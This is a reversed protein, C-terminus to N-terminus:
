LLKKTMKEILNKNKEYMASQPTITHGINYPPRLFAAEDAISEFFVQRKDDETEFVVCVCATRFSAVESVMSISEASVFVIDSLACFGEFVFPYNKRNAIVLAQTHSFASLEKDLYKEIERPTRRSTSILLGYDGKRSFEKLKPLFAKVNRIFEKKDNLPGGIFLAIHKNKTLSFFEKAKKAKEEINSPCFLAGKIIVANDALVRDHEPIIALDFVRLPINPRLIVASKAGLSASVLKNIPAILSGTSIVIDAYTQNLERSTKPKLLHPLLWHYSPFFRGSATALLDSVARCLKNKYQVDIIKTRISYGRESLLSVLTQSQKLHGTKRDSLILIDRNKKYKFRKYYWCYEWPYQALYKEYIRNLDSLVEHDSKGSLDLPKAIEVVHRLGERRYSFCPYIRKNFKRALHLAGGPTPVLHSFFEVIQATREAGHDIVMGAMCGKKLERILEKLSSCVCMGNHRRLDNLFRNLSKQRQEKVLLAYTYARSFAMNIVEWSGSHIGIFIGGSADVNDKGRIDVGAYLRSAILTELITVGLNAFNKRLIGYIERNAKRPFASKLNGFAIRKKKPNLYLVLGIANGCWYLFPLPLQMLVNRILNLFHYM